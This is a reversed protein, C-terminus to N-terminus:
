ELIDPQLQGCELDEDELVIRRLINKDFLDIIFRRVPLRYHHAELVALAKRFLGADQFGPPKKGKLSDHHHHHNTTTTRRDFPGNQIDHISSHISHLAPLPISLLIFLM